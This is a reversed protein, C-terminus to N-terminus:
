GNWDWVVAWGGFVERKRIQEVTLLEQVSGERDRPYNQV